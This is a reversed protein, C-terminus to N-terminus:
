PAGTRVRREFVDLDLVLSQHLLMVRIGIAAVTRGFVAQDFDDLRIIIQLGHHARGIIEDRRLSSLPANPEGGDSSLRLGADGSM